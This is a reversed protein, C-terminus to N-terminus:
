TQLEDFQRMCFFDSVENEPMVYIHCAAEDDLESFLGISLEFQNDDRFLRGKLANQVAKYGKNDNDFSSRNEYSCREIIALFAKEYFPLKGGTKVFGDILRTISDSIYNSSEILRNGPLLTYLKIHLWGTDTIEVEGFVAKSHCTKRKIEVAKPRYSEALKRMEVVTTEFQSLTIDLMSNQKDSSINGSSILHEIAKQASYIHGSIKKLKEQTKM